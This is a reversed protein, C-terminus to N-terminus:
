HQLWLNEIEPHMYELKILKRLQDDPISECGRQSGPTTTETGTILTSYGGELAVLQNQLEFLSQLHLAYVSNPVIHHIDNRLDVIM